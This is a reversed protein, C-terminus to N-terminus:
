WLFLLASVSLKGVFDKYYRDDRKYDKWHTLVPVKDRIIVGAESAFKAAQFPEHPRRKGEAVAIPMRRGMAKTM